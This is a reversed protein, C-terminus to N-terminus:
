DYIRELKDFRKFRGAATADIDRQLRILNLALWGAGSRADYLRTRISKDGQPYVQMSSVFLGRHLFRSIADDAFAQAKTLYRSDGTTEYLDIATGLACSRAEIEDSILSRIIVTDFTTEPALGNIVSDALQLAVPDKTLSYALAAAKAQRIPGEWYQAFVGPKQDRGDVEVTDRFRGAGAHFHKWYAHIYALAKELFGAEPYWQYARMLFLSLQAMGPIEAVTDKRQFDNKILGTRSDRAKWFLDASKRAWELYKPESTKSYLFAFAHAFLGSHKSFTLVDTTRRGGYYDSHRNNLFTDPDLIKYEYIAEIEGLTKQPDKEWFIDYITTWRELEHGYMFNRPARVTFAGGILYDLFVNYFLHEGWGFHGTQESILHNLFFNLCADASRAYRSQGTSDSLAYLARITGMDYILNSSHLHSKWYYGFDRYLYEFNRAYEQDIKAPPKPPAYTEPDLSMCFLPTSRRGYRDTGKEVLTDLFTRAAELYKRSAAAM